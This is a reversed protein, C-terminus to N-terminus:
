KIHKWTRGDRISDLTHRSVNYKQTKAIAYTTTTKLLRKIERVQDETLKANGNRKAYLPVLKYKCNEPSFDKTKDLRIVSYGPPREGMDEFFNTFKNWRECVKIGKGGYNKYQPHNSDKCRRRMSVWINFTPNNKSMGHKLNVVSVMGERIKDLYLM